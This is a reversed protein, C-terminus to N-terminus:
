DDEPGDPSPSAFSKELRELLDARAFWHRASAQLVQRASIPMDDDAKLLDAEARERCGQASDEPAAVLKARNESLGLIRPRRRRSEPPDEQM